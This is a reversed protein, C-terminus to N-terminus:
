EQDIYEEKELKEILDSYYVEEKHLEGIAKDLIKFELEMQYYENAQLKSNLFGYLSRMKRFDNSTTKTSPGINAKNAIKASSVLPSYHRAASYKNSGFKDKACDLREDYNMLKDTLSHIYGLYKQKLIQEKQNVPNQHNQCTRATFITTNHEHTNKLTNTGDDLSGDTSNLNLDFCANDTKIGIM